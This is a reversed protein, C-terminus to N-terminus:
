TSAKRFASTDVEPAARRAREDEIWEDRTIPARVMRLVQWGYVFAQRERQYSHSREGLAYGLWHGAEHAIALLADRAGSENIFVEKTESRYMGVCPLDTAYLDVSVGAFRLMDAIRYISASYVGNGDM